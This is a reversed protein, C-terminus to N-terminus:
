NTEPLKIKRQIAIGIGFLITSIFASLICYICFAGIKFKQIYIFYTSSLFGLATALVLLRAVLVKKTDLYLLSLVGIALYFVIGYASLPIGLFVSYPSKSVTDCGTFGLVCPIPGGSIRKALLFTSDAFGVLALTIVAILLIKPILNNTPSQM